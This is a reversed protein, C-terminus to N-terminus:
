TQKQSSEGFKVFILRLLLSGGFLTTFDQLLAPKDNGQPLLIKRRLINRSIPSTRRQKLTSNFGQDSSM